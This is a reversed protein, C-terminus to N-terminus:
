KVTALPCLGKILSKKQQKPSPAELIAWTCATAPPMDTNHERGAIIIPTKERGDRANSVSSVRVESSM